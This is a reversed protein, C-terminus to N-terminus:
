SRETLIVYEHERDFTCIETGSAAPDGAESLHLAEHGAGRLEQVWRPTLNMDVLLRM